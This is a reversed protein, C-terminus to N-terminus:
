RWRSSSKRSTPSSPATPERHRRHLHAHFGLAPDGDGRRHRGRRDHGVADDADFNKAIIEAKMRLLDRVFNAAESSRTRCGCWAWPARSASPRRPKRRRPPAACSTAFHGDDRLDGAQDARPRHVTRDLAKVWRHDAGDLHPEAPRRQAHRRRRGAIMKGDDATLLNAIDNRPPTTAAACRSRSADAQSIRRATEDLDDALDAYLDYFPRPIRTDTTTVALMPTPIPYFGTCATPTPISACCWAASGRPHVLHDAEHAPGLNGLGHGEQHRRRAQRSDRIAAGGGVAEKAASEETWKCCNQSVKGAEVLADFEPSVRRVRADARRRRVPPPLRDLRHRRRRRVPDLLLDEWYVYEDGVEEWVKVEETAADGTTRM